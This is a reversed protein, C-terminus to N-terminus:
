VLGISHKIIQSALWINEQAQQIAGALQSAVPTIATTVGGVSHILLGCDTLM